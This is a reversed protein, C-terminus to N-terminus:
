WVNRSNATIRPRSGSLMMELTSMASIGDQSLLRKLRSPTACASSSPRRPRKSALSAGSSQSFACETREYQRLTRHSFCPVPLQAVSSGTITTSEYQIWSSRARCERARPRRFPPPAAEIRRSPTRSTNERPPRALHLEMKRGATSSWECFRSQREGSFQTTSPRRSTRRFQPSTSGIPMFDNTAAKIASSQSINCRMPIKMMRLRHSSNESM